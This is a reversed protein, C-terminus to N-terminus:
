EQVKVGEPSTWIVVDGQRIFVTRRDLPIEYEESDSYFTGSKWEVWWPLLVLNRGILCAIAGAAALAMIVICTKKM